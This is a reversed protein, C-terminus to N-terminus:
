SIEKSIQKLDPNVAIIKGDPDVLFSKLDKELHFKEILSSKAGQNDFFQSKKELNDRKVIESFIMKDRDYNVAMLSIKGPNQKVLNDYQINKIRSEANSSSWFALLLYRGKMRQVSITTDDNNVTFNPVQAGKKGDINSSSFASMFIFLLSIAVFLSLSKKM